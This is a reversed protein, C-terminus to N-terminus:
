LVRNLMIMFLNRTFLVDSLVSQAIIPRLPIVGMLTDALHQRLM